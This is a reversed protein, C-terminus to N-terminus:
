WWRAGALMGIFFLLSLGGAIGVTKWGFKGDKTKFWHGSVVGLGAVISLGFLPAQWWAHRIIESYTDGPPGTVALVIDVGIIVAMAVLMFAISFKRSRSVKRRGSGTINVRYDNGDFAVSVHCHYRRVHAATRLLIDELAQEPWLETKGTM